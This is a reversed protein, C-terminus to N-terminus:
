KKEIANTHVSDIQAFHKQQYVHDAIEMPPMRQMIGYERQYLILMSSYNHHQCHAQCLTIKGIHLQYRYLDNVIFRCCNRMYINKQTAILKLNLLSFKFLYCFLFNEKNQM